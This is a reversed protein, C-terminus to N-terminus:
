EEEGMQDLCLYIDTIVSFNTNDIIKQITRAIDRVELYNDFVCTTVGGLGYAGCIIIDKDLFRIKEIGYWITPNGVVVNVELICFTYKADPCRKIIEALERVTLKQFRQSM